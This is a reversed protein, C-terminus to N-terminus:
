RDGDEGASGANEGAETTGGAGDAWREVGEPWAFKVVLAWMVGAAVSFAAHYALGVPLFGAVLGRDNWNWFDWHAVALVVILFWVFPKM